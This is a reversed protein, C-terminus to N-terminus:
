EDESVEKLTIKLTDKNITLEKIKQDWNLKMYTEGKDVREASYGGGSLKKKMTIHM